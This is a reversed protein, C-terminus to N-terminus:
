NEEAAPEVAICEAECYLLPMMLSYTKGSSIAVGGIKYEDGSDSGSAECTIYLSRYGPVESVVAAGSKSHGTYQAPRSDCASVEGIKVGTERDFVPDGAKVNAAMDESIMESQMVFSLTVNKEAAREGRVKFFILVACAIILVILVADIFNFRHKRKEM